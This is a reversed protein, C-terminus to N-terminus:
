DIQPMNFDDSATNAVQDPSNACAKRVRLVREKTWKQSRGKLYISVGPVKLQCGAPEQKYM